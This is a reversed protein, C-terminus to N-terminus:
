GSISRSPGARWSACSSRSRATSTAFSTNRIAWLKDEPRGHGAVLPTIVEDFGLQGLWRDLVADILAKKDKFHWYFSGRTVGLQHALRDVKITEISGNALAKWAADVWDERTLHSVRAGDQGNADTQAPM